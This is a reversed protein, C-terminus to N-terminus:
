GLGPNSDIPNLPRPGMPAAKKVSIWFNNIKRTWSIYNSLFKTSSTIGPAHTQRGQAACIRFGLDPSLRPLARCVRHAGLPTASPRPDSKVKRVPLSIERGEKGRRAKGLIDRWCDEKGGM